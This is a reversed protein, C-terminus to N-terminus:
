RSRRRKSAKRAVGHVIQVANRLRRSASDRRLASSRALRRDTTPTSCMAGSTAIGGLQDRSREPSRDAPPRCRSALATGSPFAPASSPHRGSAATWRGWTLELSLRHFGVCDFVQGCPARHCYLNSGIAEAALQVGRGEHEIAAGTMLDSREIMERAAKEVHCIWLETAPHGCRPLILYRLQRLVTGRWVGRATRARASIRSASSYSSAYSRPSAHPMVLM